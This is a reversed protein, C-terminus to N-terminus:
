FLRVLVLLRHSLLVEVIALYCENTRKSVRYSAPPSHFQFNRKQSFHKAYQVISFSNSRKITFTNGCVSTRSKSQRVQEIYTIQQQLDAIHTRMQRAKRAVDTTENASVIDNFSGDFLDIGACFIKLAVINIMTIVKADNMSFQHM